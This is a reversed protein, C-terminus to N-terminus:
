LRGVLGSDWMAKCCYWMSHLATDKQRVKQLGGVLGCGVVLTLYNFFYSDRELGGVLGTAWLVKCCYLMCLLVTDKQRVIQSGGVLGCGVALTLCNYFERDRVLGGVLGTAWMAKKQLKQRLSYNM